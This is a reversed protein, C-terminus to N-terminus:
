TQVVLKPHHPPSPVQTDRAFTISSDQKSVTVPGGQDGWEEPSFDPCVGYVSRLVSMLRSLAHTGAPDWTCSLEAGQLQVLRFPNLDRTEM